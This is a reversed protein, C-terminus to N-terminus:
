SRSMRTARGPRWGTRVTGHQEFRRFGVGLQAQDTVAARELHAIALGDVVHFEMDHWSVIAADLSACHHKITVGQDEAGREARVKLPLADLLPGDGLGAGTRPVPRTKRSGPVRNSVAHDNPGARPTVAIASLDVLGFARLSRWAWRALGPPKPKGPSGQPCGKLAKGKVLVLGLSVFM